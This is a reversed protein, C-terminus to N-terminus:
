ENGAHLILGIALSVTITVVVEPEEGEIESMMSRYILRLRFELINKNERALGTVM